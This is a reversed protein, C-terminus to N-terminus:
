RIGERRQREYEAITLRPRYPEVPVPEPQEAAHVDIQGISVSVTPPAAAPQAPARAADTAALQLRQLARQVAEQNADPLESPMLTAPQRALEEPAAQPAARRVVSQERASPRAAPVSTEPPSEAVRSIPSPVAIRTTTRPLPDVDIPMGPLRTGISPAERAQRSFPIRIRTRTPGRTSEPATEITPTTEMSEVTPAAPAVPQSPMAPADGIRSPLSEVPPSPAEPYAQLPMGSPESGGPAALAGMSAPQDFGPPMVVPSALPQDFGRPMAPPSAPSEDPAGSISSAEPVEPTSPSVVADLGIDVSDSPSSSPASASPAPSQSPVRSRPPAPSAVTSIPPLIPAARSVDAVPASSMRRQIVAAMDGTVFGPTAGADEGTSVSSSEAMRPITEALSETAALPEGASSVSEVPPVTEAPPVTEVPPVTEAPPVAEAPPVTEAPPDVAPASSSEPISVRPELRRQIVQGVGGWEGDAGRPAGLVDHADLRPLAPPPAAAESAAMAPADREPVAMSSSDPESAAITSSGLESAVISPAGLESHAPPPAGPESVAASEAVSEPGIPSRADPEATEGLDAQLAEDGRDGVDTPARPGETTADPTAPATTSVIPAEAASTAAAPASGASKVQISIPPKATPEVREGRSERVPEGLSSEARERSVAADDVFRQVVEGPPQINGETADRPAEWTETQVLGGEVGGFSRPPADYEITPRNAVRQVPAETPSEREESGAAEAAPTAEGTPSAANADGTDRRSQLRAAPQEVTSALQEAGVSESERSRGAVRLEPAPEEFSDESPTSREIPESPVPERRGISPRDQSQVEPAGAERRQTVAEGVVFPPAAQAAPSPEDTPEAVPADTSVAVPADAPVAVREDTPVAAPPSTPSEIEPPPAAEQRQIPPEGPVSRATPVALPSGEDAPVVPAVDIPSEETAQTPPEEAAGSIEAVAERRQTM